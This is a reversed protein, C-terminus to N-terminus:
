ATVDIVQAITVFNDPAAGELKVAFRIARLAAAM